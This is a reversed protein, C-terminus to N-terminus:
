SAQTVREIHTDRRVVANETWPLSDDEEALRREATARAEAPSSAILDLFARWRFEETKFVEVQFLRPRPLEPAVSGGNLRESLEDIEDASLPECDDFHPGHRAAEHAGAQWIRLAALV